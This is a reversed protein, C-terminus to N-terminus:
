KVAPAHTARAAPNSDSNSADLRRVIETV